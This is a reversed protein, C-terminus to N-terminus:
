VVPECIAILSDTKSTQRRKVAWFCKSGSKETLLQTFELALAAPLILYISFFFFSLRMPIEVQSRLAQLM